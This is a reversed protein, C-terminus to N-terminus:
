RKASEKQGEGARPAPLITMNDRHIVEPPVAGALLPPLESSKRGMGLRVQESSWSAIGRAFARGKRDRVTVADGASFTGEVATIGAALLSKGGDLLVKRAGDDVTVAGSVHSAHAIWMKRSRARVKGPPVVLTGADKGALVDLLPSRTFASAIVAPTGWGSVTRAARLKSAM